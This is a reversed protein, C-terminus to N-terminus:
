EHFCTSTITQRRMSCATRARYCRDDNVLPAPLALLGALATRRDWDEAIHLESSPECLRALVLVLAM